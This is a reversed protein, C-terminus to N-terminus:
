CDTAEEYLGEIKQTILNWALNQEIYRKGRRVMERSENSDQILHIIATELQDVDGYRVVSGFNGAQVLNGCGCGEAVIVPTGCMIAELVVLGFIEQEAPYVLVDADRYAARPDDVFGVFRVRDQLGRSKVLEYAKRSYGEDPGAIVLTSDPIARAVSDFAAILFDIGKRRHLRGIYLIVKETTIDYQNRFQGRPPLERYRSTDIGNPIIAIKNKDAGNDVYQVVEAESVAILRCADALLGAGSVWDFLRKLNRKETQPSGSGHAQLVYPVHRRTAYNHVVANQYSRWTHLHVIDFAKIHHVLWKRISPSILLLQVNMACQFPILRAGANTVLNVCRNDLEFDTTVITVDHGRHALQKSLNFCANVEGARKEAFFPVVQLIKMPPFWRTLLTRM